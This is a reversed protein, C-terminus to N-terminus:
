NATPYFFTIATVVNDSVLLGVCAPLTDVAGRNISAFMIYDFQDSWDYDRGDDYKEAEDMGFYSGM